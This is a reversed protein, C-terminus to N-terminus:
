PAQAPGGAWVPVVPPRTHSAPEWYPRHDAVFQALTTAPRGLVRTLTDTLPDPKGFRIISYFLCMFAVVDAPIRRRLMRVSFRVLSPNTYHIPRGAVESLVQAIQAFDLQEAGTLSYDMNRHAAPNLLVEATFAAVDRADVLAAVGRGAPVFLENYVGIDYDHTTINRCLNQMYYCPRIICHDVGIAKLHQEVGHHPVIKRDAAGGVSVFVMNRCGARMAADMFPQMRTKATRATPLPFLLYLTTVGELVAPWTAPDDYDLRVFSGATGCLRTIEDVDYAAIRLQNAPLRGMLLRTLPVGVNGSPGTIVLM